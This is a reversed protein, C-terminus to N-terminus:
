FTVMNIVEIKIATKFTLQHHAIQMSFSDIKEVRRANVIYTRNIQIFKNSPLKELIEKSSSRVKLSSEDALHIIINRLNNELFLIEDFKIKEFKKNVKLFFYDYKTKHNINAFLNFAIEISAYLDIQTFPKVLFGLPITAKAKSVSPIDSNATIFIFPTGYQNNVYTALEIGDKGKGLKIDILLLDPRESEIMTIAQEYNSAPEALAYNLERLARLMFEVTVGEDEVIGIKIRNM